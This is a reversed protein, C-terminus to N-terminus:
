ANAGTQKASGLLGAINGTLASVAMNIIPAQTVISLASHIIAYLIVALNLFAIILFGLPLIFGAGANGALQTLALQTAILAITDLIQIGLMIGLFNFIIKGWNEFKPTLYFFIGIPFLAVGMLLVLYRLFLTLLAIGITGSFLLM